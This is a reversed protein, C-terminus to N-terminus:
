AMRKGLRKRAAKLADRETDMALLQYGIREYESELARLRATITKLDDAGPKTGPAAASKRAPKMPITDPALRPKRPKEVSKELTPVPVPEPAASAVVPAVPPVPAVVPPVISEVRPASKAASALARIRPDLAAVVRRFSLNGKTDVVNPLTAISPADTRGTEALWVRDVLAQADLTLLDAASQFDIRECRDLFRDPLAEPRNTTFVVVSKPPLNELASLWLHAAKPTMLDCEDVLVLKFGSGAPCVFQLMRLADDVADADGRASDIQHYGWDLSVGLDNALARAVTTKGVGTPGAFLFAQPAPAELFTGLQYVASSQGVVDALTAPRHRETLSEVPMTGSFPLAPATAPRALAFTPATSM